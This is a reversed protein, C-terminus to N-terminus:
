VRLLGRLWSRKAAAKARRERLIEMAKLGAGELWARVEPADRLPRPVVMAKKSKHIYVGEM